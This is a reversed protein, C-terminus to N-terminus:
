LKNSFMKSFIMLLMTIGIHQESNWQKLAGNAKTTTDSPKPIIQATALLQRVLKVKDKSNCMPKNCAFIISAQDELFDSMTTRTATLGYPQSGAGKKVCSSDAAIGTGDIISRCFGNPCSVSAGKSDACTLDSAM